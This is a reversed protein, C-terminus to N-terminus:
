LSIPRKMLLIMEKLMRIGIFIVRVLNSCKNQESSLLLLKKDKMNGCCSEPSTWRIHRLQYHTERQTDPRQLQVLMRPISQNCARIKGGIKSPKNRNIRQRKIRELQLNIHQGLPLARFKIRLPLLLLLNPMKRSNLQLSLSKIM